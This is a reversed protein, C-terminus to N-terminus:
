KRRGLPDGPHPETQRFREAPPTAGDAPLSDPLRRRMEGDQVVGTMGRRQIKSEDEKKPMEHSHPQELMPHQIEDPRADPTAIPADSANSRATATQAGVASALGFYIASVAYFKNLNNM